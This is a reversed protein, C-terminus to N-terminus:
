NRGSKQEEIRTVKAGPVTTAVATSIAAVVAPDSTSGPVPFVVTILRIVGALISLLGLVAIFAILCILVLSEKEM